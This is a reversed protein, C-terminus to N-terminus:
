TNPKIIGVIIASSQLIPYTDLINGSNDYIFKYFGWRYDYDYEALDIDIPVLTDVQNVNDSVIILANMIGKASDIDSHIPEIFKGTHSETLRIYYPGKQNTILGEVVLRSDVKDLDLDYEDVCSIISILLLSLIIVKRM